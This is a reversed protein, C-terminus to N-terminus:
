KSTELRGGAFNTLNDRDQFTMRQEGAPPPTTTFDPLRPDYLGGNGFPLTTDWHRGSDQGASIIQFSDPRHFKIQGTRPNRSQYYPVFNRTCLIKCDNADYPAPFAPSLVSPYNNEQTARRALFYAYPYGYHDQYVPVVNNRQNGLVDTFPWKLRDTKFDFFPGKRNGGQVTPRLNDAYFGTVGIARTSPDRYPLGGLFYVLCEDGELVLGGPPAPSPPDPFDVVGDRNVDWGPLGDGSWDHGASLNIGKFIDKLYDVSYVHLPNVPLPPPGVQYNGSESLYIISPPYQGYTQRFSDVASALNDVEAITRVEKVYALVRGITALLITMLIAIIAVVVLIEVLTYGPRQRRAASNELKM